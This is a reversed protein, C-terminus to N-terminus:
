KFYHLYNEPLPTIAEECYAEEWRVICWEIFTAANEVSLTSFRVDLGGYETPEVVSIVGDVEIVALGLLRADSQLASNRVIKIM